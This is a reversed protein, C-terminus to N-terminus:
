RGIRGRGIYGFLSHTEPWHTPCGSQSVPTVALVPRKKRAPAPARVLRMGCSELGAVPM